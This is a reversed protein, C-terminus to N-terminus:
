HRAGRVVEVLDLPEGLAHAAGAHLAEELLGGRPDVQDHQARVEEPGGEPTRGDGRLAGRQHRAHVVLRVRAGRGDARHQLAHPAAQEVRGPLLPQDAANRPNARVPATRAYPEDHVCPVLAARDPAVAAGWFTTGFLYPSLVILDVRAAADELFREMGPCRVSQALWEVQDLYDATGAMVAAHARAFRAEDRPGVPFRHVVVGGDRHTGAPLTNAWTAHDEACTTAVEATWDGPVARLALARVLTEAGGVVRPGFRPM